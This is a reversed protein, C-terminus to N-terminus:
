PSGQSDYPLIGFHETSLVCRFGNYPSVASCREAIVTSFYLEEIDIAGQNGSGGRILKLDEESCTHLRTTPDGTPLLLPKGDLVDPIVSVEDDLTWEAVNGSMDCLDSYVQDDRRPNNPGWCLPRIKKSLPNLNTCSDGNGRFNIYECIQADSLPPFADSPWATLGAAGAKDAAVEWEVETPLRGGIRRCYNAADEWTLCNMPLTLDTDNPVVLSGTDRATNLTAQLTSSCDSSNSLTEPSLCTASNLRELADDPRITDTCTQAYEEYSVESTMIFYTHDLIIMAPPGAGQATTQRRSFERQNVNKIRLWSQGVTPCPISEEEGSSLPMTNSADCTVLEFEPPPPGIDADIEIMADEQAMEMDQTFDVPEIDEDPMATDINVEVMMDIPEVEEMDPPLVDQDVSRMIVSHPPLDPFELCGSGSVLCLTLIVLLTPLPFTLTFLYM